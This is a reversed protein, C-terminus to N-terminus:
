AADFMWGPCVHLMASMPQTASTIPTVASKCSKLGLDMWVERRWCFQLHAVDKRRQHDTAQNALALILDMARRDPKAHQGFAVLRLRM